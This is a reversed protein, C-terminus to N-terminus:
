FFIATYMSETENIIGNLTVRIKWTTLLPGQHLASSLETVERYVEAIANCNNGKILSIELESRDKESLSNYKECVKIISERRVCDYKKLEPHEFSEPCAIAGTSVDTIDRIENLQALNAIALMYEPALGDVDDQGGELHRYLKQEEFYNKAQLAYEILKDQYKKDNPVFDRVNITPDIDTDRNIQIRGGEMRINIGYRRLIPLIAGVLDGETNIIDVLQTTEQETIIDVRRLIDTLHLAFRKRNEPTDERICEDLIAIDSYSVRSTISDVFQAVNEDARLCRYIDRVSRAYIYPLLDIFRTDLGIMANSIFVSCLMAIHSFATDFLANYQSQHYGPGKLRLLSEIATLGCETTARISFETLPLIYPLRNKNIKNAIMCGIAITGHGLFELTSWLGIGVNTIRSLVNATQPYGRFLKNLFLTNYYSIKNSLSM